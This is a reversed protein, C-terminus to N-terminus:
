NSEYIRFVDIGCTNEDQWDFIFKFKQDDVRVTKATEPYNVLKLVKQFINTFFFSGPHINIRSYIKNDPAVSNNSEIAGSYGSNENTNNGSYGGDSGSYGSEM